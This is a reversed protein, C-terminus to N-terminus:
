DGPSSSRKPEEKGDKAAEPHPHRVLETIFARGQADDVCDIRYTKGGALIEIYQTPLRLRRADEMPTFSIAHIATLKLVLIRGSDWEIRIYRPTKDPGLDGRVATRIEWDFPVAEFDPTSQAPTELSVSAFVIAAAAILVTVAMAAVDRVGSNPTTAERMEDPLHRSPQM